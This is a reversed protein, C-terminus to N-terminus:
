SDQLTDEPFAKLLLQWIVPLAELKSLNLEFKFETAQGCFQLLKM